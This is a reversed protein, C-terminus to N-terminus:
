IAWPYEPNIGDVIASKAAMLALIRMVTAQKAQKQKAAESKKVGADKPDSRVQQMTLADIKAAEQTTEHVRRDGVTEGALVIAMAVGHWSTKCAVSARPVPEKHETEVDVIEEIATEKSGTEDGEVAPQWRTKEKQM